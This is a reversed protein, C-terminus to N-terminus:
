EENVEGSKSTSKDDGEINQQNDKFDYSGFVRQQDEVKKKNEEELRKRPPNIYSSKFCFFTGKEKM